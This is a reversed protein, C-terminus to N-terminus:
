EVESGDPKGFVAALILQGSGRQISMPTIGAILGSMILSQMRRAFLVRRVSRRKMGSYPAASVTNDTGTRWAATTWSDAGSLSRMDTRLAYYWNKALGLLCGALGSLRKARGAM